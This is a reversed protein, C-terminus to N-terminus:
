AARRLEEGRALRRFTDMFYIEARGPDWFQLEVGLPNTHRMHWEMPAMNQHIEDALIRGDAEHVEAPMEPPLDFHECVAAMVRAEAEKYGPLHRKLPSPVDALYAEAADHLLAWMANAPSVRRAMHVSHEAVSYFRLSHGGYRCQMALSHAIDRIDVEDARPDVPWFKLGTYTQMFDGKRRALRNDNAPVWYVTRDGSGYDFGIGMAMQAALVPDEQRVIDPMYENERLVQELPAFTEQPLTDHEVYKRAITDWHM